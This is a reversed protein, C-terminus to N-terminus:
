PRIEAESVVDTKSRADPARCARVFADGLDTLCGIVAGRAILSDHHKPEVFDFGAAPPSALRLRFLNEVAVNVQEATLGLREPMAAITRGHKLWAERPHGQAGEFVDDLVRAESSSLESLITP